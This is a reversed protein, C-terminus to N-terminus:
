WPCVQGLSPTTTRNRRDDIWLQCRVWYRFVIAWCVLIAGCYSSQACLCSVLSCESRALFSFCYLRGSQSRGLLAIGIGWSLCDYERWILYLCLRFMWTSILTRGCPCHVSAFQHGPIETCWWSRNGEHLCAEMPSVAVLLAFLQRWLGSHRSSLLAFDLVKSFTHDLRGQLWSASRLLQDIHLLQEEIWFM